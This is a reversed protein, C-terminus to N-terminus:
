VGNGGGSSAEGAVPEFMGQFKVPVKAKVAAMAARSEHNVVNLDLRLSAILGLWVSKILDEFRLEGSAFTGIILNLAHLRSQAFTSLGGYFLAKTFFELRYDAMKVQKLADQVKQASKAVRDLQGVKEFSEREAEYKHLVRLARDAAAVLETRSELMRKTEAILEYEKQLADVLLEEHLIPELSAAEAWYQVPNQLPAFLNSNGAAAVLQKNLDSVSLAYQRSAAACKVAGQELSKLVGELRIVTDGAKTIEEEVKEPLAFMQVASKWRDESTNTGNSVMPSQANPRGADVSVNLSANLSTNVGGPSAPSPSSAVFGTSSTLKKKMAEWEAPQGFLFTRTVVDARLYVSEVVRDLFWKLGRAREELFDENKGMTRKEPLALM